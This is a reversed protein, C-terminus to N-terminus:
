KLGLDKKIKDATAKDAVTITALSAQGFKDQNAKAYAIVESDPYDAATFVVMDMVRRKTYTEKFFDMEQQSLKSGTILDQMIYDHLIQASTDNM